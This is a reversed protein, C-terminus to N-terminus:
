EEEKTVARSICYIVVIFLAMISVVAAGFHPSSFIFTQKYFLLALTQSKNAPGGDTLVFVIDFVKLVQVLETVVLFSLQPKISPLTVHCFCQRDDAGDIRSAELLEEPVRELAAALIILAMGMQSWIWTFILAVNVTKPTGLWSFSSHLFAALLGVNPNPTFVFMWIIATSTGSIALPIFFISRLIKRYKYRQTILAVCFGLCIVVPVGLILWQLSTVIAGGCAGGNWSFFEKDQFLKIYNALGVFSGMTFGKGDTLSLIITMVVPLLLFFFILLLAPLLFLMGLISEGKIRHHQIQNGKMNM